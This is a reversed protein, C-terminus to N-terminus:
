PKKSSPHWVKWFKCHSLWNHVLIQYRKIKYAKTNNFNRISLWFVSSLFGIKSGLPVYLSGLIIFIGGLLNSFSVVKVENLLSPIILFATGLAGLISWIPWRSRRVSCRVGFSFLSSIGVNSCTRPHYIFVKLEFFM